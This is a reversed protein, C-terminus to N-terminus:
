PIGKKNLLEFVKKIVDKFEKESPKKPLCEFPDNLDIPQTYRLLEDDLYSLREPPLYKYYLNM